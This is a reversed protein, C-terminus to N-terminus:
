DLFYIFNFDFDIVVNNTQQQQNGPIEIESDAEDEVGDNSVTSGISLFFFLHLINCSITKSM